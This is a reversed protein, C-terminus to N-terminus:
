DGGQPRTDREGRDLNAEISDRLAEREHEYYDARELYWARVMGMGFSPHDARPPPLNLLRLAQRHYGASALEASLRLQATPRSTLELIKAFRRYAAEADGSQIQLHGKARVLLQQYSGEKPGLRRLRELLALLRESNRYGPCVGNTLRSLFTELQRRSVPDTASTNSVIDVLDEIKRSPDSGQECTYTINNVRWALGNPALRIAQRTLRRAEDLHDTEAWFAALRNHTRASQPRDEVWHLAQKFPTSWLQARILTSVALALILSVSIAAMARHSLRTQQVMAMGVPLFALAAPLYNRHEFYLELPIATSELTHGVLFFLIAAALAPRGYRQRWALSTVIIIALLSPLTTWPSLPGTSFRIGDHFLGGPTPLPLALHYVYEWIIRPQTILREWPTFDRAPPPNIYAAGVKFAAFAGLLALPAGLLLLRLRRFGASPRQGRRQDYTALITAEIVAIYAPLLAGNEKSLVACLGLGGIILPGTVLWYRNVRPPQRLRAAAWAWVGALVFFTSLQTMRQVAYLTTSVWLPHLLWVSGTLLATASARSRSLGLALALTRCLRYLVAANIVHIVLNTRKFPWPDAPWTTADILFTLFSLPRGTVSQGGTIYLWFSDWDDVSGYRGLLSLNSYDDFIFGSDLGPLYVAVALTAIIAMILAAWYPSLQRHVYEPRAIM